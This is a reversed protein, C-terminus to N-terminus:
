IKNQFFGSLPLYIYFTTGISVQSKVELYGHHNAVVKQCIALGIGTGPYEHRHHLRQFLQFIKETCATNFGIGNDSFEIKCFKKDSRNAPVGPIESGGTVFTRIKIVTKVNQRAFKLSNDLLHTFLATLQIMNGLVRPLEGIELQLEPIQDTDLEKIKDAVVMNLTESLDVAQFDQNRGQGSFQLYDLLDNMMQQMRAASDNIRDLMFIADPHLTEGFKTTLRTSFTQLKRLPEQFHHTSLYVFNELEANTRRLDDVAQQLQSEYRWRRRLELIVAFFSASFLAVALISILGLWYPTLASLEGARKEREDLLREEELRIQKVVMRISDMVVRGHLMTVKLSDRDYTSVSIFMSQQMILFRKRSLSDLLVIRAHQRDNDQTMSDLVHISVPLNIVSRSYPEMYRSDHTLMYGRVGTEADIILSITGEAQLLVRTTHNVLMSYGQAQELNRFAALGVRFLVLVTGALVWYLYKLMENRM